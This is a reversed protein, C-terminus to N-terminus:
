PFRCVAGGMAFDEERSVRAAEGIMGDALQEQFIFHGFGDIGEFAPPSM